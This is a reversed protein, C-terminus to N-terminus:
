SGLSPVRSDHGLVLEAFIIMAWFGFGNCLSVCIDLLCDIGDAMICTKCALMWLTLKYPGLKKSIADCRLWVAHGLFVICTHM